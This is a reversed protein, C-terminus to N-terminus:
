LEFELTSIRKEDLHQCCIDSSLCSTSKKFEKMDYLVPNKKMLVCYMPFGKHNYAEYVFGMISTTKDLDNFTTPNDVIVISGVPYTPNPYPLYDM